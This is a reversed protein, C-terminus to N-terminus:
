PGTVATAARVGIAAQTNNHPDLDTAHPLAQLPPDEPEQALIGLGRHDGEAAAVGIQAPAHGGFDAAQHGAPAM